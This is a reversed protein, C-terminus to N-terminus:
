AVAVSGALFTLTFPIRNRLSAAARPGFRFDGVTGYIYLNVYANTGPNWAKDYILRVKGPARLTGSDAEGAAPLSGSGWNGGGTGEDLWSKPSGPTGSFLGLESKGRTRRIEDRMKAPVGNGANDVFGAEKASEPTIIGQVTFVERLQKFDLVSNEGDFLTLIAALSSATHSDTTVPLPIQSGNGAANYDPSQLKFTFTM